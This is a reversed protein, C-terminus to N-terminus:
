ESLDRFHRSLCFYYTEPFILRNYFQTYPYVTYRKVERLNCPCSSARQNDQVMNYQTLIISRITVANIKQLHM